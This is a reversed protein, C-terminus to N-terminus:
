DLYLMTGELTSLTWLFLNGDFLQNIDKLIIGYQTRTTTLKVQKKSQAMPHGSKQNFMIRLTGTLTNRSLSLM